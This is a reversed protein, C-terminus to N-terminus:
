FMGMVQLMLTKDYDEDKQSRFSLGIRLHEDALWNVQITLANEISLDESFYDFRAGFEIPVDAIEELSFMAQAFWADVRDGFEFKEMAAMYEFAISLPGFNGEVDGAIFSVNNNDTPINFHANLAYSLGLTLGEIPSFTARLGAAIGKDKTVLDWIGYMNGQVAFATVSFQEAEIAGYVGLDAWEGTLVETVGPDYMFKNEPFSYWGSALGFPTDFYGINFSMKTGGDEKFISLYAGGIEASYNRSMTEYTGITVSLSLWPLILADANLEIRGILFDFQSADLDFVARVDAYGSFEVTPAAALPMAAALCLLVCCVIAFRNLKM